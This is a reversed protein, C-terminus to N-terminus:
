DVYFNWELRTVKGEEFLVRLQNPTVESLNYVFTTEETHDPAGLAARVQQRHMGVRVGEETTYVSDTVTIDQMIEKASGTVDYVTFQLGTYHFTRLTDVQGPEHRNEHPEAEIRLPEGLRDLVALSDQGAPRDMAAGVLDSLPVALPGSEAESPAPQQDPGAEQRCSMCVAALILVGGVLGLLSAKWAVGHRHVEKQPNTRSDM